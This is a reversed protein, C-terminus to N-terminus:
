PAQYLTYAQGFDQVMIWQERLFSDLGAWDAATLPDRAAERILEAGLRYYLLHTVGEERWKEAIVENSTEHQRAYWWRDTIADPECHIHSPCYYSRPEWLFRVRSDEPLESLGEMAEAYRGLHERLYSQESQSGSIVRLPTTASFELVAQLAELAFTFAILGGVVFRVSRGWRGLDQLSEYGLAALIALAPLLPFILRTQILLRSFGLQLLWGLYGLAVVALLAHLARRGEASGSRVRILALPALGLLLPGIAASYSPHGVYFGGEIGWITAEWPALVLQKADLGSGQRSYWFARHADWDKGSFFFPYIPNGTLALNKALYPVTFILIAGAFIAAAKFSRHTIYVAIALGIVLWIATYKCNIAMAAFFGAVVLMRAKPAAGESTGRAIGQRDSGFQGMGATLLVYSALGAFMVMWEVYASSALGVASPVGVLIAVALWSRGPMLKGTVAPVLGLTLLAFSLHYLQPLRDGALLMGFTFLMSGAQPFGLHPLDLAHHLRGEQLYLKPGTLHYVLSDWATPPALARLAALALLLAAFCALAADGGRRPIRQLLARIGGYLRPLGFPLSLIVLGWPLLPHLIGVAGFVLTGYGLIGFGMGLSLYLRWSKPVGALKGISFEGIALALSLSGVFGILVLISSGIAELQDATWPKHLAFYAAIVIAVWLLAAVALARQTRKRGSM